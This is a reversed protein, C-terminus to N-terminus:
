NRNFTKNKFLVCRSAHTLRLEGKLQAGSGSLDCRGPTYICIQLPCKLVCHKLLVHHTQAHMHVHASGLACSQTCMHNLSHTLLYCSLGPCSELQGESSSEEEINIKQREFWHEQLKKKKQKNRSKKNQQQSTALHLEPLITPPARPKPPKFPGEHADWQVLDRHDAADHSRNLDM